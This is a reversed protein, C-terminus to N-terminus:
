RPRPATEVSGFRVYQSAGLRGLPDLGQADVRLRGKDDLTAIDDSVYGRVIEGFILSQPTKGIEKIEVLRCAMAVRCASLRPLPFDEFPTTQLSLAAVESEDPAYAGASENMPTLLDAHVIHVVFHGHAEINARTDKPTGDARKGVSFMLLPPASAIPTFYSFPAVNLGAPGQSLVWAIPRPILTQTMIHYAQSSKLAQFDLIVPHVGGTQGNYRTTVRSVLCAFSATESGL